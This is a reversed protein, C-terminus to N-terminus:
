GDLDLGRYYVFMDHFADLLLLAFASSSPTLGACADKRGEVPHILIKISGSALETGTGSPLKESRVCTRLVCFHTHHFMSGPLGAVARAPATGSGFLRQRFYMVKMSSEVEPHTSILGLETRKLLFFLPFHLSLIFLFHLIGPWYRV